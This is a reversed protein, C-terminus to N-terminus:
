QTAVIVYNVATDQSLQWRWTLPDFAIGQVQRVKLGAGELLVRLAAPVIFRNWDHTGAPVWRLVYEAAIKALVLSKFTRNITAVFMLGGPRLLSAAARLFEGPDPVHELIEMNLVVDFANGGAALAEATTCRYTINLASEDAHAMAARVSEEAADCGTVNFGLRAMPEALLGGGCGLDLLSLGAFPKLMRSDRHFHDAAADRIFKLRLPNLKHLPAFSGSPDWWQQALAAFKAVEGEDVSHSAISSEPMVQKGIPPVCRIRSLEQGVARARAITGHRLAFM